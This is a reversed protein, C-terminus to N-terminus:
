LIIIFWCLTVKQLFNHHRIVPSTFVVFTASSICSGRWLPWREVVAMKKPRVTWVNVKTEVERCHGSEEIRLTATTSLNLQILRQTTTQKLIPSAYSQCADKLKGLILCQHYLPLYVWLPLTGQHLFVQGLTPHTFLLHYTHHMLHRSHLLPHQNIPCLQVLPLQHLLLPYDLFWKLTQWPGTWTSAMNANRASFPHLSVTM